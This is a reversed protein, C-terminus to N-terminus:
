SMFISYERFYHNGLKIWLKSNPAKHSHGFLREDRICSSLKWERPHTTSILQSISDLLNAGNYKILFSL